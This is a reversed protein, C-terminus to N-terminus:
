EAFASRAFSGLVFPHKQEPDNEAYTVLVRSGVRLGVPSTGIKGTAASTVPQLPIAWQLHEDKIDDENNEYGYKRIQVYGAKDEGDIKRVEAIFVSPMGVVGM